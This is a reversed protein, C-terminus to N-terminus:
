RPTPLIHTRSPRLILADTTVEVKPERYVVLVKKLQERFEYRFHRQGQADTAYDAGFQGQLGSWPIRADERLYSLRYTLWIYIDIALPSRRLEKLANLNIPVPHEILERFFEEGLTVTSQWLAAQKPNKPDWWLQYRSAVGFNVGADRGEDTWRGHISCSFLRCMQERLRTISGWRGGTPVLDLQTMFASLSPGLVLKREKTRVVETTMWAILLRPISGYPLGVDPDALM